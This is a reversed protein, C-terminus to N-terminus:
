LYGDERLVQSHYDDTEKHVPSPPVWRFSMDMKSTPATAVSDMDSVADCATSTSGFLVASNQIMRSGQAQVKADYYRELNKIEQITESLHPCAPHVPVSPKDMVPVHNLTCWYDIPFPPCDLYKCEAVDNVTDIIMGTGKIFPLGIITNVSVNPGTAVMFSLNNSDLTKYSLCFLFGVELKTTVTEMKNWVIGMLVISAYDQPAFIKMVCHPFRKAIAAFFHFSRMRLAACTDVMCCITPCNPDTLDAGFKIPIHPLNSQILIPMQPKLPTSAALISVDVM